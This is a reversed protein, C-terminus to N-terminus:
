VLIIYGAKNVVTLRPSLLRCKILRFGNSRNEIEDLTTKHDSQHQMVTSQSQSLFDRAMEYYFWDTFGIM